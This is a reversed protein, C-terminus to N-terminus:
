FKASIIFSAFRYFYDFGIIKKNKTIAGKKELLQNMFIGSLEFENTLWFFSDEAM